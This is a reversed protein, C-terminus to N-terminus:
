ISLKTKLHLYNVIQSLKRIKQSNIKGVTVSVQPTRIHPPLVRPVCTMGRQQKTAEQLVNPAPQESM